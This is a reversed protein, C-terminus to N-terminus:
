SERTESSSTLGSTLQAPDGLASEELVPEAPLIGWEPDWHFLEMDDLFHSDFMTSVDEFGVLGDGLEIQNGTLPGESFLLGQIEEMISADSCLLSANDELVLASSVQQVLPELLDVCATAGNWRRGINSLAQLCQPILVQLMFVAQERLPQWDRAAWCADLSVVATEFLIHVAHWPYFLRKRREQGMYDEIVNRASELLTRRDESSRWRLRPTPRYIRARLHYFQIHKFELMHHQAYGKAEAYWTQLRGDIDQIWGEMTASGFRGLDEDLHM